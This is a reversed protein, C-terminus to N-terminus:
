GIVIEIHKLHYMGILLRQGTMASGDYELFLTSSIERIRRDYPKISEKADFVNDHYRNLSVDDEIIAFLFWERLTIEDVLYSNDKCYLPVGQLLIITQGEYKLNMNIDGPAKNVIPVIVYYAPSPLAQLKLDDVWLANGICVYLYIRM